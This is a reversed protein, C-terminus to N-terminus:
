RWTRHGLLLGAGRRAASLCLAQGLALCPAALMCSASSFSFTIIGSRSCSFIWHVCHLHLYQMQTQAIAFSLCKPTNKLHLLHSNPTHSFPVGPPVSNLAIVWGLGPMGENQLAVRCLKRVNYILFIYIYRICNIPLHNSICIFLFMVLALHLSHTRSGHELGQKGPCGSKSM